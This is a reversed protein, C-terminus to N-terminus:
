SREKEAEREENVLQMMADFAPDDHFDGMVDRWQKRTTASKQQKPAASIIMGRRLVIVDELPKGDVFIAQEEPNVGAASLLDALTAGEPLNFEQKGVGMRLLTVGTKEPAAPKGSM